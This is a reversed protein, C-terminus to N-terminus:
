LKLCLVPSWEHLFTHPSHTHDLVDLLLVYFHNPESLQSCGSACVTPLIGSAGSPSQSCMCHCEFDVSTSASQRCCGIEPHHLPLRSHIDLQPFTQRINYQKPILKSTANVRTTRRSPQCSALYRAQQINGPSFSQEPTLQQLSQPSVSQPSNRLRPRQPVWRRAPPRVTRAPSGIFISKSTSVHITLHASPYALSSIPWNNWKCGSKTFHMVWTVMPLACSSILVTKVDLACVGSSGWVCYQAGSLYFLIHHTHTTGRTTHLLWNTWQASQMGICLCNPGPDWQPWFPTPLVHLSIWLWCIHKCKATVILKQITCFCHPISTWRPFPRGWTTNSPFWNQPPM